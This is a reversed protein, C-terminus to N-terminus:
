SLTVNQQTTNKCKMAEEIHLRLVLSPSNSHRSQWQSFSDYTRMTLLSTAGLKLRARDTTSGQNLKPMPDKFFHAFLAFSKYTPFKEQMISQFYHFKVNWKM